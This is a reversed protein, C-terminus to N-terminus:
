GSGMTRSSSRRGTRMTRPSKLRWRARTRGSRLADHRAKELADSANSVLERLFVEKDAYLSNTVIDLLRKTEAQFRMTEAHADRSIM